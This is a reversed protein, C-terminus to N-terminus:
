KGNTYVIRVPRLDLDKEAIGNFLPYNKRCRDSDHIYRSRKSDFLAPGEFILGDDACCHIKAELKVEHTDAGM